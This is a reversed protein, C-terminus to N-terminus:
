IEPTKTYPEGARTFYSLVPLSFPRGRPDGDSFPEITAYTGSFIWRAVMRGSSQVAEDIVVRADPVGLLTYRVSQRIGEHGRFTAQFAHDVYSCDPTFLSAMRDADGTNWAQAWLEVLPPIRRQDPSPAAAAPSTAATM